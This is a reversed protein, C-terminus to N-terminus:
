PTRAVAAHSLSRPPESISMPRAVSHPFYRYSRPASLRAADRQARPSRKPVRARGRRCDRARRRDLETAGPAPLMARWAPYDNMALLLRATTRARRSIRPHEAGYSALNGRALAEALAISQRFALSLGEGTLADVTGSADGVLAINGGYVANLRSTSSVGGRVRSALEAHEIRRAPVPFHTALNGFSLEYARATIAICIEDRAIPTM